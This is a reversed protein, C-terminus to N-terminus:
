RHGRLMPARTHGGPRPVPVIPLGARALAVDDALGARRIRRADVGDLARAEAVRPRLGREPLGDPRGERGVATEGQHTRVTVVDQEYKLSLTLLGTM